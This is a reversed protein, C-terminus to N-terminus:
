RSGAERRIANVAEDLRQLFRSRDRKGFTAPGGRVEGMQRLGALLERTALAEGINEETFPNGGPGIVRAGRALCRSALIIDATVVVDGAGARGAIWEDAADFGGPVVELRVGPGEPTRMRSHAVFTVPFGYRFAVRCVEEKVPCADADVLIQPVTREGPRWGLPLPRPSDM